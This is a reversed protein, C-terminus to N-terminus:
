CEVTMGFMLGVTMTGMMVAKTGATLAATLLVLSVVWDAAWLEAKWHDTLGVLCDARAATKTEVMQVVSCMCVSKVAMRDVM